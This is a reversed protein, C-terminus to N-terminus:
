ADIDADSDEEPDDLYNEVQNNIRGCKECETHTLNSLSGMWFVDGGCTACIM